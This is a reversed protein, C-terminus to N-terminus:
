IDAIRTTLVDIILSLGSVYVRVCVCMCVCMPESHQIFIKRANTRQARLCIIDYVVAM